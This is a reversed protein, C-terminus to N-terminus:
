DHHLARDIRALEARAQAVSGDRALRRDVARLARRFATRAVAHRAAGQETLALRHARRDAPDRTRELDGRAEMANLYGSLTAPRLGLAEILAKPSTSGDAVQSYVAYQAPSLGSEALAEELLAGLHQGVVFLDLAVNGGRTGSM